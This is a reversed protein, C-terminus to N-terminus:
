VSEALFIQRTSNELAKCAMEAKAADDFIGFVASGSGSMMANLAGNEKLIDRIAIVDSSEPIVQEFTNELKEAVACLDGNELAAMMSDTTHRRAPNQADIEGYMKGTPFAEDPKVIVYHCQPMAPLTTMKEGRGECLVTGGRVCYPVDSGVLAGISELEETPMDPAYLTRLARLVAAADSSGGGLGAESPICKALEIHCGGEIGTKEFFALAAKVALNRGDTPLDTRDCVMTIDEAKEVTVTDHLSASTMISRLDHYGDSRKEGVELTLNLKAYALETLKDADEGFKEKVAREVPVYLFWIAAIEVVLLVGLIILQGMNAMLRTSRMLMFNLAVFLLGFQWTYRWATKCAFDYQEENYKESHKYKRPLHLLGAVVYIVAPVFGPWWVSLM